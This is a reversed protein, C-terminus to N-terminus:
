RWEMAHSCDRRAAEFQAGGCRREGGEVGDDTGDRVCSLCGAPGRIRSVSNAIGGGASAAVWIERHVAEADGSGYGGSFIGGDDARSMGVAHEVWPTIQEAEVGCESMLWEGIRGTGSERQAALAKQLQPHTIWGQALMLLGLPVRHRHPSASASRRWRGAGGCRLRCWQWCAAGAAVGSDKLSRGGGTAGPCRGDVRASQIEASDGSSFRRGAICSARFWGFGAVNKSPRYEDGKWVVGDSAGICGPMLASSEADETKKTLFPM